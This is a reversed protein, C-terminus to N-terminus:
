EIEKEKIQDEYYKILAIQQEIYRRMENTNLSLNEYDQVTLAIFVVTGFMEKNKSIFNNLNEQNVANFEVKYLNLPAPRQKIPIIKQVPVSVTAIEPEWRKSFLGCGSLSITLLLLACIKWHKMLQM